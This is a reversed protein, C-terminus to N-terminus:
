ISEELRFVAGVCSCQDLFSKTKELFKNSIRSFPPCLFRVAHSRPTPTPPTYGNNLHECLFKAVWKEIVKSIIPLINILRYNNIDTKNETKFIPRIVGVKWASPVVAHKISLNVIHTISSILSEKHEKLYNTYPELM